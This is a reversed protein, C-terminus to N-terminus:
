VQQDLWLSWFAAIEARSGKVQAFAAKAGAKDGSRALAIGLQTNVADVDVGAGGKQLATRYLAIAKADDGYGYYANATAAASRGTAAANASREAAALSARDSAVKANSLSRLESLAKSSAPVGGTTTAEEVVSKTEGPLGRDNALSAYEYYDREGALSKTARMLRFLDLNAAADRQGSDRYIVLATRWNEKSPYAALQARTWKATESPLKGSYSVSVARKYWEEPAKRGAAQESKIAADVYGLGAPVQNTKFNSEALLLKMQQGQDVYGLREAEKFYQASKAFDNKQYAFQGLYYNYKAAEPAAAGSGSALMAQLAREQGAQDKVASAAQLRLQAAVFKEDPEAAAADLAALTTQISSPEGAKIAAQAPGAAARFAKGLKYNYSAGAAAEEGKKKQAAAPDTAGLALAAALAIM